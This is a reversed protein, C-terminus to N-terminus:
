GFCRFINKNKILFNAHVSQVPSPACKLDSYPACNTRYKCNETKMKKGYTGNRSNGSGYGEKSHKEYGLHADLEAKLMEEVGQKFLDNFFSHFEEKSKFQKFFDKPITGTTGM